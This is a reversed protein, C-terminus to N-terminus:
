DQFQKSTTLCTLISVPSILPPPFIIVQPHKELWDILSVPSPSSSSFSRSDSAPSLSSFPGPSVKPITDKVERIVRSVRRPPTPKDKIIPKKGDDKEKEREKEREREKEKEREKEREKEEKKGEKRRSLSINLSM